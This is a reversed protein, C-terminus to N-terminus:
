WINELDKAEYTHDRKDYNSAEPAKLKLPDKNSLRYLWALPTLFLYFVLGLIIKSNIWGLGEGIKFWTWVIYYGVIPILMGVGGIVLAAYLLYTNGSFLYIIILGVVIVLLSKLEKEKLM